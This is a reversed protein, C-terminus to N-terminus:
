GLYQIIMTVVPNVFYSSSTTDELAPTNLYMTNKSTNILEMEETTPNAVIFIGQGVVRVTHSTYWSSGGAYVINEGSKKFAVSIFDTQRNFTSPVNDIYANVVFDIRYVGGMNFKIINNFTDVTCINANDTAKLSFPLRSGSPVAYGETTNNNYTVIYAAKIESLGAPGQPGQPGEQGQPGQPGREGVEGQPGIPGTDGKPGRITGVNVWTNENPSWVYLDDGVLYSSGPTGEMHDRELDEITDYSGLITVSTGSPGTEGQPGQPGPAGKEGPPGAPGEPGTPGIEGKEGQEGQVGQMGQVGQPGIPGTPGTEGSPIIFDLIASTSTGRNEVVADTDPLGTTVTGIEITAPGAPGMPGTPGTAGVVIHQCLMPCPPCKKIFSNSM